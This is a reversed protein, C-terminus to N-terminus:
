RNFEIRYEPYKGDFNVTIVADYPRGSKGVLGKVLAKRKSLFAKALTVTMKKGQSALFKDNKWLAFNCEKNM